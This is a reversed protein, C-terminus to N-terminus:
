SLSLEDACECWPHTIARCERAIRPACAAEGPDPLLLVMMQVPALNKKTTQERSSVHAGIPFLLAFSSHKRALLM